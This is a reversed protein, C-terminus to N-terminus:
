KINKMRYVISIDNIAFDADTTTGDFKLQFSNINNIASSPKLEAKVWDDEGTDADVLCLDAANAGTSAGAANTIFFQGTCAGGNTGYNITVAGGDGQYTVYVKYIKKRVSPEGFDFDKTKIVIPADTTAPTNSWKDIQNGGDDFVLLSGDAPDNIFNSNSNADTVMATAKTWGKTILSFAYASTGDAGTKVILQQRSPEYGIRHHNTTSIFTSWTAADILQVGKNVLLNQVNEGDYMYCGYSNIWAVGFDTKCAAGANTIGKHKFEAELFESNGAVNIVYVVNKKFQFIRDAYEILSIISDGDHTIVDINSVSSPFKDYQGVSSKLMRDTYKKGDQQVNGLYARRNAVVATKWSDVKIVDTQPHGNQVEYTIFKPPDTWRNNDAVTGFDANIYNLDDAVNTRTQNSWPAYSLGASGGTLGVPAVGGTDKNLDLTMLLWLDTYGDESSAWYIKLGSIRKNGTDTVTAATASGFNFKTTDAGPNIKLSPEMWVSVDLGPTVSQYGSMFTMYSLGYDAVAGGSAAETTYYSADTHPFHTFLQPLSEQKGEDYMTTVYFKYNVTNAPNWTGTSNAGTASNESYGLGLGWHMGSLESAAATGDNVGTDTLQNNFSWGATGANYSNGLDGASSTASSNKWGQAMIANKCAVTGDNLTVEEFCGKIEAVETEFTGASKVYGANSDVGYTYAPVYGRWKPVTNNHSADALRLAGGTYYHSIGASDDSAFDVGGAETDEGVGIIGSADEVLYYTQGPAAITNDLFGDYDTTIAFFGTGAGTIIGAPSGIIYGQSSVTQSTTVTISTNSARATIAGSNTGDSYVFTRGIMATTWTTGSGTVTTGSQSATGTSYATIGSKAANMDGLVVIRGLKDIAVNELEVFQNDEIDRPDSSNNIGGHFSLIKYVQKPM